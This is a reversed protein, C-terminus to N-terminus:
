YKEKQFGWARLESKYTEPYNGRIIFVLAKLTKVLEKKQVSKQGRKEAIEAVSSFLVELQLNFENLIRQWYATGYKKDKFPSASVENVLLELAMKRADRDKPIQYYRYYKVIGFRAYYSVANEAGYESAIYAKLDSLRLDIEKSLNVLKNCAPSKVGRAYRGSTINLEYSAVVERFIEPTTWGIVIHPADTWKSHVSKCVNVLDMESTPIINVYRKAKNPIIPDQM